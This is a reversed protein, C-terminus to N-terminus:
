TRETLIFSVEKSNLTSPSCPDSASSRSPSRRPLVPSTSPAPTSTPSYGRRETILPSEAATMLADVRERILVAFAGDFDSPSQVDVPLFTLRLVQATPTTADVM